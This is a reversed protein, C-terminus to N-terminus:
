CFGRISSVEREEALELSGFIESRRTRYMDEVYLIMGSLGFHSVTNEGACVFLISLAAFPYSTSFRYWEGIELTNPSALPPPLHHLSADLLM